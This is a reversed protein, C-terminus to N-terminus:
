NAAQRHLIPHSLSHQSLLLPLSVQAPILCASCVLSVFLQLSSFPFHNIYTLKFNKSLIVLSSGGGYNSVSLTNESDISVGLNFAIEFLRVISVDDM